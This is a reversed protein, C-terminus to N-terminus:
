HVAFGDRLEAVRLWDIWEGFWEPDGHEALIEARRDDGLDDWIKLAHKIESPTVIWGDNSGFKRVAIGPTDNDHLTLHRITEAAYAKAQAWQDDTLAVPSKSDPGYWKQWDETHRQDAGTRRNFAEYVAYRFEDPLPFEPWPEDIKGGKVMGADDMIGVCRSMGWSNLRFYNTRARDLADFARLVDKQADKAEQSGRPFQDRHKVAADCANTASAIAAQEDAPTEGIVYMDYGM